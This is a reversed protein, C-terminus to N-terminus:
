KPAKLKNKIELYISSILILVVVVILPTLYNIAISKTPYFLIKFADIVFIQLIYIYLSYKEGVISLINKEGVINPNKIGYLFIFTALFITSIYIDCSGVIEYEIITLITFAIISLVLTKNKFKFKDKNYNILNGIMFFPFGTLIFNRTTEYEIKINNFISIEGLLINIILILPILYYSVKHVQYKDIFYYMIYIYILALLYWLHMGLVTKNYQFFIKIFEKDTLRNYLLDLNGYYNYYIIKWIFYGILAFLTIKLIKKINRLNREKNYNSQYAFYGSTMFFFPVAFRALSTIINGAENPFKIHIFVVSIAAIAKILNLTNNKIM